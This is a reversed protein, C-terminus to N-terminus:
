MYYMGLIDRMAYYNPLNRWGNSVTYDGSTVVRTNPLHGPFNAKANGKILYLNKLWTMQLIPTIDPWTMGLNLDELATCEVLPSIDRICSWDLELFKLKKCNVIADIYQVETHALILYELNVLTELFSVDKVGMHGIDMCILDECYRINDIEHDRVYGWGDRSPMFNDIDTRVKMKGSLDVVWVVKFRERSEERFAAIAENDLNCFGLFLHKANPLYTMGQRVEELTGVTGDSLDVEVATDTYVKGWITKEWTLKLGSRSERLDLLVQAPALPDKLHLETLNPLLPLLGIQEQTIQNVTLQRVTEEYASDGLVLTFAISNNRCYEQLALAAPMDGAGSLSVAELQPLFSLMPIDEQRIDGLQLSRTDQPYSQDNVTVQYFVKLDPYTSGALIVAELDTCQEAHLEALEPFYRIQQVDEQSLATVTLSTATNPQTGNQFPVDWLIRCDPLKRQFRDFESPTISEGRLDLEQLDKPYFGSGIMIYQTGFWFMAVVVALLMAAIISLVIIIKKGKV